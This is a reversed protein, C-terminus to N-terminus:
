HLHMMIGDGVMVFVNKNNQLQRIKQEKQHPLVNAFYGDLGLKDSVYKAVNQNDGTLM